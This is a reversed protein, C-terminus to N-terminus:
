WLGKASATGGAQIKVFSVRESRLKSTEENGDRVVWVLSGRTEM